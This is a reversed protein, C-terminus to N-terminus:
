KKKYFNLPYKLGKKSVIDMEVAGVFMDAEVKLPLHNKDDSVWFRISEKGEFLSNDPVEPVLKIANIKGLSTKVVEKGKYIINVNYLEDEIFASIAVKDGDSYKSFDINRLYYYASVMDHVKTVTPYYRINNVKDNKKKYDRRITDNDQDFYLIEFMRYKNEKIDRKAKEPYLTSTDVYSVWRDNIKVFWSITNTSTGSVDYKYCSKGNVKYLKSSVGLNAYGATVFGYHLRYKISEGQDFATKTVKPKSYVSAVYFSSLAFVGLLLLTFFLYKKM